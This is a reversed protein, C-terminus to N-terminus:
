RAPRIKIRAKGDEVLVRMDLDSTKYKTRVRERKLKVRESFLAFDVAQITGCRRLAAIFEQYLRQIDHESVTDNDRRSSRVALQVVKGPASRRPTVV